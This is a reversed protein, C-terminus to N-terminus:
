RWMREDTPTLLYLHKLPFFESPSHKRIVELLKDKIGETKGGDVYLLGLLPLSFSDFKEEFAKELLFILHDAYNFEDKYIDWNYFKKFKEYNHNYSFQSWVARAKNIDGQDIYALGLLIASWPSDPFYFLEKEYDSIAKNLDGKRQAVLGLRYHTLSTIVKGYEIGDIHDESIAEQYAQDATALAGHVFAIDGVERLIQGRLKKFPKLLSDGSLDKFLKAAEPFRGQHYYVRGLARKTEVSFPRLALLQQYTKEARALDGLSFYTAALSGLLKPSKQVSIVGEEYVEKAEIVREQGAYFQALHLYSEGWGPFNNVLEKFSQEAELWKGEYQALYGKYELYLFDDERDKKPLSEIHSISKRILELGKEKYVPRTSYNQGLFFYGEIMFDKDYDIARQLYQEAQDFSIFPAHYLYFVGTLYNLVPDRPVLGVLIELEKRAMYTAYLENENSYALFLILHPLIGQPDISVAREALYVAFPYDAIALSVLGAHLWYRVDSPNLQHLQELAKRASQWDSRAVHTYALILPIAPETTNRMLPTLVEVAQDYKKTELFLLGLLGLTEHSVDTELYSRGTPKTLFSFDLCREYDCFMRFMRKLPDFRRSIPSDALEEVESLERTETRPEEVPTVKARAWSESEGSKAYGWVVIKARKKRGWEEAEEHSEISQSFDRVEIDSFSIWEQIQELLAGAHLYQRYTVRGSHLDLMKFPTIAIGIKDSSFNYFSEKISAGFIIYAVYGLVFLSLFSTIVMLSRAFRRRRSRPLTEAGFKGGLCVELKSVDFAVDVAEAFYQVPEINIVNAFNKWESSQKLIRHSGRSIVICSIGENIAAQVKQHVFGVDGVTTIERVNIIGTFAMRKRTPLDVLKSLTSIAVALGISEGDIMAYTGLVCEIDYDRVRLINNNRHLNHAKRLLSNAYSFAADVGMKAAYHFSSPWKIKLQRDKGMTAVEEIHPLRGDLWVKGERGDQTEHITVTVTFAEGKEKEKVAGLGYIHTSRELADRLFSRDHLLTGFDSLISEPENMLSLIKSLSYKERILQEALSQQTNRLRELFRNFEKRDENLVLSPHELVATLTRILDALAAGHDVRKHQLDKDLHSRLWWVNTAISKEADAPKCSSLSAKIEEIKEIVQPTM